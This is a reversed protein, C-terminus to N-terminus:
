DQAVTITKTDPNLWGQFALPRGRRVMVRSLGDIKYLKGRSYLMPQAGERICREACRVHLAGQHGGKEACNTDTLFGVWRRPKPSPPPPELDLANTATPELTAGSAEGEPSLGIPEFGPEPSKEFVRNERPPIAPRNVSKSGEVPQETTAITQTQMATPPDPPVPLRREVVITGAVGLALASFFFLAARGSIRPARWRWRSMTEGLTKSRVTVTPSGEAARVLARGLERASTFRHDPSQATARELVHFLAPPLALEPSPVPLPETIHQMLIGVATEGTFPVRGTFMEYALIGLSYIDARPDVREGRCQEPAMYEPTGIILGKGTVPDRRRMPKAIGFDFVMCHLEPTVLINSPKVDRHVVGAEHAAHLGEAIQPLV